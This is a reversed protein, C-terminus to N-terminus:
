PPVMRPANEMRAEEKSAKAISRTVCGRTLLECQSKSAKHNPAQGGRGPLLVGKSDEFMDSLLRAMRDLVVSSIQPMRAIGQFVEKVHEGPLNAISRLIEQASTYYPFSPIGAMIRGICTCNMIPLPNLTAPVFAWVRVQQFWHM